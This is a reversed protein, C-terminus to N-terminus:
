KHIQCRQVLASQGFVETVAKRLGKGGDIAVLV